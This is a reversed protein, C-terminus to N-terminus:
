MRGYKVASELDYFYHIGRSCSTDSYDFDYVEQTEGIRYLFSHDHSSKAYDAEISVGYKDCIALTKAVKCRYKASGPEHAIRGLIELKVICPTDNETLAFKYGYDPSVQPNQKLLKHQNRM